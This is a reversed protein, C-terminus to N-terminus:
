QDLEIPNFPLPKSNLGKGKTTIGSNELTMKPNEYAHKALENFKKRNTIFYDLDKMYISEGERSKQIGTCEFLYEGKDDSVKLILGPLGWFKWPGDSYAIEPAYWATYNRGRFTTSAKKCKYGCVSAVGPLIKWLPKEREEEYKFNGSLFVRDTVTIKDAPYNKFVNLYNAGKFYPEIKHLVEDESKKQKSMAEEISDSKLKYYDSFKSVKNGIQLLMTNERKKEPHAIDRVYVIRYQVQLITTDIYKKKKSIHVAGKEGFQSSVSIDQAYSMLGLSFILFFSIAKFNM